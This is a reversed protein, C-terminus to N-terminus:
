SPPDLSRYAWRGDVEDVHQYVKGEISVTLARAVGGPAKVVKYVGDGFDVAIEAPPEEAEKDETEDEDEEFEEETEEVDPEDPTPKDSKKPVVRKAM